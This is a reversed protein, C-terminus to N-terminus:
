SAYMILGDYIKEENIILKCIFRENLSVREM